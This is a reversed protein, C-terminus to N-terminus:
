GTVYLESKRRMSRIAGMGSEVLQEDFGLPQRTAVGKDRPAAKATRIVTWDPDRM